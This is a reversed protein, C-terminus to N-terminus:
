NRSSDDPSNTGLYHLFGNKRGPDHNQDFYFSKYFEFDYKVDDRPYATITALYPDLYEPLLTFKMKYYGALRTMIVNDYVIICERIGASM